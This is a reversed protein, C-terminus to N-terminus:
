NYNAQKNKSEQKIELFLSFSLVHCQTPLGLFLRPLTLQCSYIAYLMNLLFVFYFSQWVKIEANTLNVIVDVMKRGKVKREM